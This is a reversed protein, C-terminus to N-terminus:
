EAAAILAAIMNVSVSSRSIAGAPMIRKKL